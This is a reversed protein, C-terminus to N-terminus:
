RALGLRALLPRLKSAPILGWDRCTQESSSLNAPLFFPAPPVTDAVPVGTALDRCPINSSPPKSRTM